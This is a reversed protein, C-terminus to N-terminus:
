AARPEVYAAPDAIGNAAFGALRLQCADCQGCALEDVPDYCSLTQSYDVGLQLGRAIIDAKTLHMLPANIRPPNGEVARKSFVEALAQFREIFVPRCDPYGSYDLANVGIFVHDIGLVEAEQCAHVLFATNRLPVYTSPIGASMEEADRGKPVEGSGTLASGAIHPLEIVRWPVDWREALESARQVELTHRQGYSFSRAVIDYGEHRAIALVTTSDLGGSLLVMAKQNSM